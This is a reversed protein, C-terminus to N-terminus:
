YALGGGSIITRISIDSLKSNDIRRKLFVFHKSIKMDTKLYFAIHYYRASVGVIEPTVPTQFIDNYDMDLEYYEDEGDGLTFTNNNGRIHICDPRSISLLQECMNVDLADNFKELGKFLLVDFKPYRSSGLRDITRDSKLFLTFDSGCNIGIPKEIQNDLFVEQIGKRSTNYVSGLQDRSNSGCCFIRGDKLLAVIHFAGSKLQYVPSPFTKFTKTIVHRSNVLNPTQTRNTISLFKNFM